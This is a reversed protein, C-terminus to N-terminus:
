RLDPALDMLWLGPHGRIGTLPEALEVPDTLVWHWAGPSGEVDALTVYGLIASIILRRTPPWLTGPAQEDIEVGAHIWLRRRHSPKWERDETIKLGAVIAWAYPQWVTLIRAREPRPPCAVILDRSAGRVLHQDLLADATTSQRRAASPQCTM